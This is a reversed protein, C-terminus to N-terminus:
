LSYVCFLEVFSCLFIQMFVGPRRTLSLVLLSFLCLRRRKKRTKPKCSLFVQHRWWKLLQFLLLGPEPAAGPIKTGTNRTKYKHTVNQTKLKSKKIKFSPFMFLLLGPALAAGRIKEKTGTSTVSTTTRMLEAFGQYRHRHCYLHHCYCQSMTRTERFAQLVIKVDTLKTLVQTVKSALVSPSNENENLKYRQNRLNVNWLKPVGEQEYFILQEQKQKSKLFTSKNNRILVTSNNHPRSKWISQSEWPM